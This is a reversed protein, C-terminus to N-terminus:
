SGDASHSREAYKGIFNNGSDYSFDNTYNNAYILHFLTLFQSSKKKTNTHIRHMNTPSHRATTKPQSNAHVIKNTTIIIHAKIIKGAKM